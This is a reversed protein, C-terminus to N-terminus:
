EQSPSTPFLRRYTRWSHLWFSGLVLAFGLLWLSQQWVGVVIVVSTALSQFVLDWALHARTSMVNADYLVRIVVIAAVVVTFIAWGGASWSSGGLVLYCIAVGAAAELIYSSARRARLDQYLEM